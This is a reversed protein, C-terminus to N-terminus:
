TFRKLRINQEMTKLASRQPPYVGEADKHSFASKEDDFSAQAQNYLSQASQRALPTIVGKYLKLTIKGSVNRQSQNILAQLMEREPSFWLGRYILDAYLPMFQDKLHSAERDLTIEELFRHAHHLITGGPSEYVGRSKMGTARNEVMDVRGIAYKGGIQNLEALLLAPSLNQGNLHTADGKEFIIEIHAPEDPSQEPSQTMEYAIEPAAQSLDELMNGESSCHLLNADKSFPALNDAKKEIPIDHAKAYDLLQDRSKMDWLRWPAIVSLDPALAAYALEFRIQDNGKGTAGHCVGDAKLQRALEIQAKAILPRAIATGLLYRGEYLTNARMMAFVYDRVFTERLDEIFVQSAGLKLAKDKAKNLDEGQGLDALFAIIDCQYQNKLWVLIVSTDLGGSYALIIKKPTKNTM